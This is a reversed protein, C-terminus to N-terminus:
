EREFTVRKAQNDFTVKYRDFLNMGLLNFGVGLKASFGVEIEFEDEGIRMKIKHLYFPIFSGDGVVAM